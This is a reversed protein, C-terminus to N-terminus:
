RGLVEDMSGSRYGELDVTVYTFGLSKMRRVVAGRVAPRVLSHVQDPSVEIRATDGHARVRVQGFGKRRLYEEGKEIRGLLDATLPHGYPVRTALCPSPAKRHTTMRLRRSIRIVDKKGLGAVALPSRVGLEEKAKSGPRFAREDDANSGDLVHALPREDAARRVERFGALKCVYCRDPPNGSFEPDRLPDMRVVIHDIGISKALAKAGKLESRPFLPSDITVAVARDGLEEKAIRAVLASDAGGSFAVAASGMSGILSRLRDLKPDAAAM